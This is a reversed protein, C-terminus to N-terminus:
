KVTYEDIAAVLRALSDINITLVYNEDGSLWVDAYTEYVVVADINELNLIVTRKQNTQVQLFKM